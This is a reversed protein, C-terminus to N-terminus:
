KRIVDGLMALVLPKGGLLKDVKDGGHAHHHHKDSAPVADRAGPV